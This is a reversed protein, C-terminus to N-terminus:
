NKGTNANSTFLGINPQLEGLIPSLFFSKLIATIVYETPPYCPWHNYFKLVERPWWNLDQGVEVQIQERYSTLEVGQDQIYIAM